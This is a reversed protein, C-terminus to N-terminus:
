GIKLIRKQGKDLIYIAGSPGVAILRADDFALAGGKEAAPIFKLLTGSPSFILVGRPDKTLLYIHNARDIAFDEIKDFQYGKGQPGLAFLAKGDPAFLVLTKRQKDLGYVQNRSNTLVKSFERETKTFGPSPIVNGKQDYVLIGPAKGSVIFYQGFLNVAASKIEELLESKGEKTLTFSLAERTPTVVSAETSVYMMERNDLFVSTPAVVTLSNSVKGTSDFVYVIKKGKDGLYISGKSDIMMAIPEDMDRLSVAFAPDLQYTRKDTQPALYLRYIVTNLQRAPLAFESSPFQDILQQFDYAAEVHSDGYLSCIGMEYQARPALPSDAFRVKVKAFEEYAKDFEGQLKLATGAGVLSRDVWASSPFVRTVREFDAYAEDLDQADRRSLYIQGLYYYAAPASNSETYKDKIQQFFTLAQDLDKENELYYVGLQLLADDALPNQPFSKVIFNLDDLAQQFKGDRMFIQASEYHGKAPDDATLLWGSSLLLFVIAFVASKM